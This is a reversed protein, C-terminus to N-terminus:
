HPSVEIHMRNAGVGPNRDNAKERARVQDVIRVQFGAAEFKQKAISLSAPDARYHGSHNDILIVNGQVRAEGAALVPRGGTAVSHKITDGPMVVPLGLLEGDESVVWKLVQGNGGINAISSPSTIRTPEIHLRAATAMEDKLRDPFWKNQWLVPNGPTPAEQRPLIKSPVPPLQPLIKSPVPPLSLSNTPTQAYSIAPCAAWLAPILLLLSIHRGNMLSGSKRKPTSFFVTRRWRDQIPLDM